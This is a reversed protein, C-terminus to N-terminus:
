RESERQRHRDTHIQRDRARDRVIQTERDRMSTTERNIDKDGRKQESFLLFQWALEAL